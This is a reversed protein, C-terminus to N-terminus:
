RAGATLRHFYKELEAASCPCHHDMWWTLLNTVTAAYHHAVLAAPVSARARAQREICQEFGKAMVLQGIRLIRDLKRSKALAEYLFRFEVVHECLTALPFRYSGSREDWMLFEGFAAHFVVSHQIFLDDKDSFHAYFTSRGVKARAAVEQVSISDYDKERILDVLAWSLRERSRKARADDTGPLEIKKVLVRKPV